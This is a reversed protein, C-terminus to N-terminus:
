GFLSCAHQLATLPDSRPMFEHGVWGPYGCDELVRAITRWNVEDREGLDRRGPVGATHIHGILEVNATITRSLDGEMMQMHYADYLVRLGPSAVRRVVEFGFASNDCQFGPHDVKSNLLEFLLVVGAARAEDALPSLGTVCADIAADDDHNGRNGSFVIVAGVGESAALEVHGRVASQLADHHDPDNFGVDIAHGTTNVLVLGADRAAPWLTEPLMEVGSVGTDAAARLFAPGDVDHGMTFSWWAFSQRM